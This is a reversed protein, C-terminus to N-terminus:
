GIIEKLERLFGAQYSEFSSVSVWVPWTIKDFECLSGTYLLPYPFLSQLRIAQLLIQTGGNGLETVKPLNNLRKLSWKKEDKYSNTFYDMYFAWCLAQYM